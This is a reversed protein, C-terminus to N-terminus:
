IFFVFKKFKFSKSFKEVVIWFNIIINHIVSFIQKMEVRKIRSSTVGRLRAKSM